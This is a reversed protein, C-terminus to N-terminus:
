RVGFLTCGRTGASCAARAPILRLRVKPGAVQGTQARSRPQTNALGSKSSARLGLAFILLGRHRDSPRMNSPPRSLAANRQMDPMPLPVGWLCCRRARAIVAACQLEDASSGAGAERRGDERLELGLKPPGWRAQSCGLNIWFFQWHITAGHSQALQGCPSAGM